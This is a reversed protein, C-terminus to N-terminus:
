ANWTREYRIQNEAQKAAFSLNATIIDRFTQQEEATLGEPTPVIFASLREDVVECRDKLEGIRKDLDASTRMAKVVEASEQIDTDTVFDLYNNTDM